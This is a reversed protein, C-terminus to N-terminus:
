RCLMSKMNNSSVRWGRIFCQHVYRQSVISLISHCSKCVIRWRFPSTVINLKNNMIEMMDDNMIEMIDDDNMIEMIDDNMIEMMNVYLVGVHMWM